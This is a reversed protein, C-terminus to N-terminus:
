NSKAKQQWNGSEQSWYQASVGAKTVLKWKARAQEVSAPNNGDFLICVRELGTADAPDFDADDVVMLVQRDAFSVADATLLVPQDADNVGNALGHALFSDAPGTWLHSDLSQLSKFDQGRIVVRWNNGACKQVLDYVTAPMPSRTLHYFYVAGM